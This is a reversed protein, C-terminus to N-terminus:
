KPKAKLGYESSYQPYNQPLGIDAHNHGKCYITYRDPSELRTYSDIYVNVDSSGPCNPIKKLYKPTLKHLSDPYEGQHDTAYMELSAAINKLNSRCSAFNGPKNAPLFNPVIIFILFLGVLGMFIFFIPTCGKKKKKEEGTDNDPKYDIM